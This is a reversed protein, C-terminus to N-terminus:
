ARPLKLSFSLIFIGADRLFLIAMTPTPSDSM